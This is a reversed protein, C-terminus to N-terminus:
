DASPIEQQRLILELRALANWAAHSAHLLGSDTDVVEGEGEKALHRVLADSYRNIGDNVYRWGDWAYKTAGFSSVASVSAIARPFYGLGGRYIPPKGQDYKVAGPNKSGDTKVEVVDNSM